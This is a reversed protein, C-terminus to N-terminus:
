SGVVVEEPEGPRYTGVTWEIGEPDLVRFRHNGWESTALDWVLTAGAAVARAHLADVETEDSVCLLLGLGTTDGRRPAREYGDRDSFVAIAADGRRLEAHMIGGADDPFCMTLAFGFAGGLWEIAAPADRYGLYAHLSTSTM